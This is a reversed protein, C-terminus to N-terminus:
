ICQVLALQTSKSYTVTMCISLKLDVSIVIPIINFKVSACPM